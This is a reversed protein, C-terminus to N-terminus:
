VPNCAYCEIIQDGSNFTEGFNTIKSTEDIKLSTIVKIFFYWKIFKTFVYYVQNMGHTPKSFGAKFLSIFKELKYTARTDPLNWLYSSEHTAIVRKDRRRNDSQVFNLTDENVEFEAESNSVKTISFVNSTDTNKKLMIIPMQLFSMMTAESIESTLMLTFDDDLLSSIYNPGFVNISDVYIDILVEESLGYVILSFSINQSNRKYTIAFSTSKIDKGIKSTISDIPFEYCSVSQKAFCNKDDIPIRLLVMPFESSNKAILSVFNDPEVFIYIQVANQKRYNNILSIIAYNNRIYIIHDDTIQATEPRKEITQTQHRVVPKPIIMKKEMLEEGFMARKIAAPTLFTIAQSYYDSM